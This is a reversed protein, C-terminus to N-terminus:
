AKGLGVMVQLKRKKKRMRKARLRKSLEPKLAISDEGALTWPNMQLSVSSAFLPTEEECEEIEDEDQARSAVEVLEWSGVKKIVVTRYPFDM